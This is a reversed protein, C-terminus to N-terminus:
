PRRAVSAGPPLDHVEVWTSDAAGILVPRRRTIPGFALLVTAQGDHIAVAERPVRAKVSRPPCRVLAEVRSFMPTTAGAGNWEMWASRVVGEGRLRADQVGITRKHLAAGVHILTGKGLEERSGSTVVTAALGQAVRPADREEVELLIETRTTDAIEFIATPQGANIIDGPDVRRALVTGAVPAVVRTWELRRRAGEIVDDSPGVSAKPTKGGVVLERQARARALQAAAIDRASEADSMTTSSESGAAALRQMRRARAEAASYAREAAGLDAAATAVQSQKQAVLRDVTTAYEDAEIEALLQGKEVHAGEHVLVNSVRGDVRAHVDAVGDMPVITATAVITDEVEGATVKVTRTAVGIGCASLTGLVVVLAVSAAVAYWHARM